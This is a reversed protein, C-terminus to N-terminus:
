KGLLFAYKKATESLTIDNKHASTTGNLYQRSSLNKVAQRLDEIIEDQRAVRAALLAIALEKPDAHLTDFFGVALFLKHCLCCAYTGYDYNNYDEEYVGEHRYFVEALILKSGCKPCIPNDNNIQYEGEYNDWERWSNITSEM